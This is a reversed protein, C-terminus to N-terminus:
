PTSPPPCRRASGFSITPHFLFGYVPISQISPIVDKGDLQWGKFTWKYGDVAVEKVMPIQVTVQDKVTYTREDTPLTGMVEDPVSNHYSYTVGYPIAKYAVYVNTWGEVTANAGVAHNEWEYWDWNYWETHTYGPQDLAINNSELYAKLPSGHLAEGVFIDKAGTKDNDYVAKVAVKEYDYVM